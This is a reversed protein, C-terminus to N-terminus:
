ARCLHIHGVVHCIHVLEVGQSLIDSFNRDLTLDHMSIMALIAAIDSPSREFSGTM